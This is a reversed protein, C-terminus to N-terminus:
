GGALRPAVFLETDEDPNWTALRVQEGSGDSTQRYVLRGTAQAERFLEEIERDNPRRHGLHPHHRGPPRRCAHHRDDGRAEELAVSAFGKRGMPPPWSGQMLLSTLENQASQSGSSLAAGAARCGDDAITPLALGAVIGRVGSFATPAV